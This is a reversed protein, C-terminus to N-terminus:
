VDPSSVPALHIGSFQEALSRDGSSFGVEGLFPADLRERLALINEAAAECGPDLRNAIWGAFPLGSAGIAESSLMAHNLCGLRVAVVLIVPLGLELAVDVMTQSANIPVLWGGVGEVVVRDAAETLQEFAERIVAPEIKVGAMNAALHPAIAPEFAYPNVQEYPVRFSAQAQLRLADDNVLGAPSRSCGSAVPKMGTVVHGQTQLLSMLGLSIRTKGVGTDTGTVFYGRTM